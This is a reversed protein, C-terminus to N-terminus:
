FDQNPPPECGEKIVMTVENELHNRRVEQAGKVPAPISWPPGQEGWGRCGERGDGAM